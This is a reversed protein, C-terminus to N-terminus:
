LEYSVANESLALCNFMSWHSNFYECETTGGLVDSAYYGVLNQNQRKLMPGPTIMPEAAPGALAAEILAIWSIISIASKAM